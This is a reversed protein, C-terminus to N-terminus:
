ATVRSRSAEPSCPEQKSELADQKAKLGDQMKNMQVNVAEKFDYVVVPAVDYVLGNSLMLKFAEAIEENVHKGPDPLSKYSDIDFVSFFESVMQILPTESAWTFMNAGSFNKGCLNLARAYEMVILSIKKVLQIAFAAQGTMKSKDDDMYCDLAYHAIEVRWHRRTIDYSKAFDPLSCLFFRYEVSPPVKINNSVTTGITMIVIKTDEWVSADFGDINGFDRWGFYERIEHVGRSNDVTRAYSSRGGDLDVCAVPVSPHKVDLSNNDRLAQLNPTAEYTPASLFIDPDADLELKASKWASMCADALAPFEKVNGKIALIYDAGKAIICKAVEPKCSQADSTVVPHGYLPKKLLEKIGEPELAKYDVLIQMVFEGTESSVCNLTDVKKAGGASSGNSEKGDMSYPIADPPVYGCKVLCIRTIGTLLNYVAEYVDEINLAKYMNLFSTLSPLEKLGILIELDRMNRECFIVVDELTFHGRLAALIHVVLLQAYSYAVYSQDRWDEAAEIITSIMKNFLEIGSNKSKFQESKTIDNLKEIFFPRMTEKSVGVIRPKWNVSELWDAKIKEPDFVVVRDKESLLSVIAERSLEKEPDIGLARDIRFYRMFVKDPALPGLGESFFQGCACHYIPAGFKFVAADGSALSGHIEKEIYPKGTSSLTGWEACGCGCQPCLPPVWSASPNGFNYEVAKDASSRKAAGYKDFLAVLVNLSIKDFVAKRRGLNRSNLVSSEKNRRSEDLEEKATAPTADTAPVLEEATPVSPREFSLKGEVKFKTYKELEHPIFKIQEHFYRECSNCIFTSAIFLFRVPADYRDRAEVSMNVRPSCYKSDSYAIRASASGCFPCKQDELGPPEKDTFRYEVVGKDRDALSVKRDKLLELLLDHPVTVKISRDVFCTIRSNKTEAYSPRPETCKVIVPVVSESSQANGPAPSGVAPEAVQIAQIASEEELLRQMSPEADPPAAPYSLLALEALKAISDAAAFPLLEKIRSKQSTEHTADLHEPHSFHSADCTSCFYNVRYVRYEVPACNADLAYINSFIADDSPKIVGGCSKCQIGALAKEKFVYVYKHMVGHRDDHLLTPEGIMHCYDVLLSLSAAFEQGLFIYPSESSFDETPPM